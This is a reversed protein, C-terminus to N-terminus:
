EPKAPPQPPAIRARQSERQKPTGPGRLAKRLAEYYVGECTSKGHVPTLRRWIRACLPSCYPSPKRRKRRHRAKVQLQKGCTRCTWEM